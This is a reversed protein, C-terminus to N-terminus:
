EAFSIGDLDLGSIIAKAAEANREARSITHPGARFGHKWKISGTEDACLYVGDAGSWKSRHDVFHGDLYYRVDGDREWRKIKLNYESMASGGEAAASPAGGTQNAGISAQRPAASLPRSRSLQFG